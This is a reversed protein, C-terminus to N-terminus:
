NGRKVWWSIKAYAIFIAAFCLMMICLNILAGRFDNKWDLFWYPAEEAEMTEVYNITVYILIVPLFALIHRDKLIVDSIVWNVFFFAAPALHVFINHALRDPHNAYEPHTITSEHLISWYVIVTISNLLTGLEFLFHHTAKLCISQPFLNSHLWYSLMLVVLTVALTWNTLFQLMRYPGFSWCVFVIDTLLLLIMVIRTLQYMLSGGKDFSQITKGDLEKRTYLLGECCM